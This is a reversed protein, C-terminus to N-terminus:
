KIVKYSFLIFSISKIAKSGIFVAGQFKIMDFLLISFSIYSITGLSDDLFLLFFYNPM